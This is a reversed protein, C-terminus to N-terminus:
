ELPILAGNFHLQGVNSDARRIFNKRKESASYNRFRVGKDDINLIDKFFFSIFNIGQGKVPGLINQHQDLYKTGAWFNSLM